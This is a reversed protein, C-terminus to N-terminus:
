RIRTNNQCLLKPCLLSTQYFNRKVQLYDGIIWIASKGKLFGLMHTVSHGSLIRLLMHIHNRIAFSDLM